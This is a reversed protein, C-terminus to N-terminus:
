TRFAPKSQTRQYGTHSETGVQHSPSRSHYDRAAQSGSQVCEHPPAPPVQATEQPPFHRSHQPHHPPNTTSDDHASGCPQLPPPHPTTTTPARRPRLAFRNCHVENRGHHAPNGNAPGVGNEQCFRPSGMRRLTERERERANDHGVCRDCVDNKTYGGRRLAKQGHMSQGGKISQHTAQM